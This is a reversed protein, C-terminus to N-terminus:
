ITKRQQRAYEKLGAMDKQCYLEEVDHNNGVAIDHHKEMFQQLIYDIVAESLPVSGPKQNAYRVELSTHVKIVFNFRAVRKYAQVVDKIPVVNAYTGNIFTILYREDMRCWSRLQYGNKWTEQLRKLVADPDETTQAYKKLSKLPTNALAGPLGLLPTIGVFACYIGGYLRASKIGGDELMDTFGFLNFYIIIYVVVALVTLSILIVVRKKDPKNLDEYM